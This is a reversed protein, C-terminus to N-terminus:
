MWLECGGTVDVTRLFCECGRFAVNLTSNFNLFLLGSLSWNDMNLVHYYGWCTLTTMNVEVLHCFSLYWCDLILPM